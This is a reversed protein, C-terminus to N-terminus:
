IPLFVSIVIPHALILQLDRLFTGSILKKDLPYPGMCLLFSFNHGRSKEFYVPHPFLNDKRGILDICVQFLIQIGGGIM